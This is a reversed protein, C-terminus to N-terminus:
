WPKEMMSVIQVALRNVNDNLASARSGGLEPVFNANSQITVFPPPPPPLGPAPISGPPPMGPGGPVPSGSGPLPTPQPLTDSGDGAAQPNNDAAAIAVPRPPTPGNMIAPERPNGLLGSNPPPMFIPADQGPRRPQSLLEGTRLDRWAVQVTVVYEGERVENLQNMNLLNKTVTVITGLLETDARDRDSIVKYPTKAEIERVVAQTLDFELGRQYTINKFIPVYVTHIRDDYNPKTTYGLITFNRGECASLMLTLLSLGLAAWRAKGSAAGRCITDPTLM